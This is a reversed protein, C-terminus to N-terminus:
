HQHRIIVGELMYITDEAIVEAHDAIRELDKAIALQCLLADVKEPEVKIADKVMSDVNRYIEDIGQDLELAKRAGELNLQLMADLSTRLMDMVEQAMQDFDFIMTTNGSNMLHIANRAIKVALGGVRELENDVKLLTIFMRLDSAVPQHLALIKLIDEELCIEKEDIERDKQMTSEALAKDGEEVAKLVRNVNTEVLSALATIGKRIRSTERNLHLSM